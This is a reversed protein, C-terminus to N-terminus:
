KNGGRKTNLKKLLERMAEEAEERAKMDLYEQKTTYMVEPFEEGDSYEEDLIPYDGYYVSEIEGQANKVELVIYYSGVSYDAIGWNEPAEDTLRVEQVQETRVIRDNALSILYM